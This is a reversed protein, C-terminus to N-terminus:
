AHRKKWWKLPAKSFTVGKCYQFFPCCLMQHLMIQKGREAQDQFQQGTLIFNSTEEMTNQISICARM